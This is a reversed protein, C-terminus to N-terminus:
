LLLFASITRVRLFITFTSVNCLLLALSFLSFLNCSVIFPISCILLQKIQKVIAIVFDFAFPYCATATLVCEIVTMVQQIKIKLGTLRSSGYYIGHFHQTQLFLKSIDLVATQTLSMTPRQDNDLCIKVFTKLLLLSTHHTTGRSQYCRCRFPTVFRECLQFPTLTFSLRLAYLLTSFYLLSCLSSLTIKKRFILDFSFAFVRGTTFSTSYLFSPYTCQVRNTSFIPHSSKSLCAPCM